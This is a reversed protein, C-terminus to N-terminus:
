YCLALLLFSAKFSIFFYLFCYEWVILLLLSHPGVSLWKDIMELVIITYLHLNVDGVTDYTAYPVDNLKFFYGNDYFPLQLLLVFFTEYGECFNHYSAIYWVMVFM